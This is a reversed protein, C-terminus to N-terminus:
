PLLGLIRSLKMVTFRNRVYHSYREATAMEDDGLGLVRYDATGGARELLRALADPPPVEGAV